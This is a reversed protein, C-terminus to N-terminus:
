WGRDLRRKRSGGSPFESQGSTDSNLPKTQLVWPLCDSKAQSKRVTSAQSIHRIRDARWLGAIEFMELTDIEQNVFAVEIISKFIPGFKRTM